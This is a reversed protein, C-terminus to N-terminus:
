GCKRCKAGVQHRAIQNKTGCKPCPYKDATRLENVTLGLKKAQAEDKKWRPDRIRKTCVRQSCRLSCYEGRKKKLFPKGCWSCRASRWQDGRLLGSVALLAHARDSGEYSTGLQSIVINFSGLDASPIVWQRKDALEKLGNAIEVKIEEVEAPEIPETFGQIGKQELGWASPFLLKDRFNEPTIALEDNVFRFWRDLADLRRRQAEVLTIKGNPKRKPKRM